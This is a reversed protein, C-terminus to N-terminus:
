GLERVWRKRGTLSIIILLLHLHQVKMKKQILTKNNHRDDDSLDELVRVKKTCDLCLKCEGLPSGDDEQLDKKGLYYDMCM